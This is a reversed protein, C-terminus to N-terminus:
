AHRESKKARVIVPMTKEEGRKWKMGRVKQDRGEGGGKEREGGYGRRGEEEMGKRESM